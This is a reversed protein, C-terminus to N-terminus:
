NEQCLCTDPARDRSLVTDRLGLKNKLASVRQRSRHGWIYTINLHDGDAQTSGLRSIYTTDSSRKEKTAYGCPPTLLMLVNNVTNPICLTQAGRRSTRLCSCRRQFSQSWLYIVDYPQTAATGCSATCGFVFFSWRRLLLLSVDNATGASSTSVERQTEQDPRRHYRLTPM